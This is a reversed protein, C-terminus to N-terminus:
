MTVVVFRSQTVYNNAQAFSIFSFSQELFEGDMKTQLRKPKVFREFSRM